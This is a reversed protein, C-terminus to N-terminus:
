FKGTEQQIKGEAGRSHSKSLPDSRSSLVKIKYINVNIQSVARLRLSNFVNHNTARANPKWPSKEGVTHHNIKIRNYSIRARIHWTKM